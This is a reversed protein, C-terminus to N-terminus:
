ASIKPERIRFHERFKPSLRKNNLLTIPIVLTSRYCSDLPPSVGEVNTKWCNQWLKDDDKGQIREEYDMVEVNRLRPNIYAFGPKGASDNIVEAGMSPIDNCIYQFGETLIHIFASNENAISRGGYSKDKRYIDDAFNNQYQYGKITMRPPLTKRGSADKRLHRFFDCLHEYNRFCMEQLLKWSDNRYEAALPQLEEKLKDVADKYEESEIDYKKGFTCLETIYIDKIKKHGTSLTFIFDALWGQNDCIFAKLLACTSLLSEENRKLLKSIIARLEKSSYYRHVHYENYDDEAIILDKLPENVQLDRCQIFEYLDSFLGESFAYVRSIKHGLINILLLGTTIGVMVLALPTWTFQYAHGKELDVIELCSM